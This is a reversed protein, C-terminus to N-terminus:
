GAFITALHCILGEYCSSSAIIGVSNQKSLGLSILARATVQCLFLKVSHQSINTNAGGQDPGAAPQLHRHDAPGLHLEPIHSGGCRPQRPRLDACAVCCQASHLTQVKLRRYSKSYIHTMVLRTAVCSQYGHHWSTAMIVLAIM